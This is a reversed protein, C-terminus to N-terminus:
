LGPGIARTFYASLDFRSPCDWIPIRWNRGYLNMLMAEAESPILFTEGLFNVPELADLHRAPVSARTDLDWRYVRLTRTRVAIFVDLSEGNRYFSFFRENRWKQVLVLGREALDPFSDIFLARDAERIGLDVDDDYPIFGRERVAGLLTGFNLFVDVGRSALVDRFLILNGLAVAQDRIAQKGSM